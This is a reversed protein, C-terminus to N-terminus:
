SIGQVVVVVFFAHLRCNWVIIVECFAVFCHVGLDLATQEGDARNETRVLTKHILVRYNKISSYSLREQFIKISFIDLSLNQQPPM